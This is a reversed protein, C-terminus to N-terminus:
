RKNYQGICSYSINNNLLKPNIQSWGDFILLKTNIKKEIIKYIIEANSPHNNMLLFVNYKKYNSLPKIEKFKDFNKIKKNNLMKDYFHVNLNKKILFNMLMVSSSLRLDDNEPLGKFTLGLILIKLKKALIHNKKSFYKIYRYPYLSMKENLKRLALISESLNKDKIDRVFMYPDKSLCYGGVGPSPSFLNSRSYGSNAAQILNASNINYKSCMVGLLNSFAFTFDRYTNNTLKIIEAAELSETLIASNCHNLWFKEAKSKCNDSYGSIIQPINKLDSIINGEIAREPSYSFYFDIGCKLGSIKELIKVSKRSLGIPSTSRLIILDNKKINKSINKVVNIIGQDKSYISKENPGVCIILVNCHLPRYFKPFEVKKEKLALSLLQMVEPEYFNVKNKKINSLLNENNDIGDIVNHNQSLFTLLTLGVKGLGLISVKYNNFDQIFDDYNLINKFNKNKSIEILFDINKRKNLFFNNVLTLNQRKNEQEFNVILPSSNMISKIPINVNFKKSNIRRLDGSTIIGKFKKEDDLIIAVKSSINKISDFKSLLDYLKTNQNFFINKSILSRSRGM